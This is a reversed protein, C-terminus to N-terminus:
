LGLEILTTYAIMFLVFAAGLVLFGFATTGIRDGLDDDLSHCVAKGIFYSAAIIIVAGIISLFIIM